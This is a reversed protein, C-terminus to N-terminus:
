AVLDADFDWETTASNATAAQQQQELYKEQWAAFDLRQGRENTDCHRGLLVMNEGRVCYLGGLDIDTYFYDYNRSSNNTPPPTSSPHPMIIRREVADLLVLNSYQDFTSLTGVIHKGDRLVLLLRQDLEEVLSASGPLYAPVFGHPISSGPHKQVAQPQQQQRSAAGHHPRQNAHQQSAAPAQPQQPPAQPSQM